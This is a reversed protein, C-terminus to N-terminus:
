GRFLVRREEEGDEQIIERDKGRWVEIRPLPLPLVPARLARLSLVLMDSLALIVSFAEFPLSGILVGM